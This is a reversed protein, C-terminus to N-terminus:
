DDDLCGLDIANVLWCDITNLKPLIHHDPRGNHVYHELEDAYYHNRIALLAQWFVPEITPMDLRPDTWAAIRLRLKRIM